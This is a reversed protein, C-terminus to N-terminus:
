KRNETYEPVNPATLGAPAAPAAGSIFSNFSFGFYISIDEGPNFGRGDRTSIRFATGFHVPLTFISHGVLLSIEVGPYLYEGVSVDGEFSFGAESELQVGVGIHQLHLGFPLPADAVIPVWRLEAVGLVAVPFRRPDVRSFFRIGRPSAVHLYGGALGSPIFSAKGGLRFLLQPTLFRIGGMVDGHFGIGKPDGPYLLFPTYMGLSARLGPAIIDRPATLAQHALSVGSFLSLRHFGPASLAQGFTFRGAGYISYSHSLGAHLLISNGRGRIYGSLLDFGLSVTQSTSQRYVPFLLSGMLANVGTDEYDHDVTYSFRFPPADVEIDASAYIQSLSPYFGANTELSVFSLPSSFMTMIGAGLAFGASNRVPTVAPIPFWFIPRPLDIYSRSPPLELWDYAEPPREEISLGSPVAPEGVSPYEKVAATYGKSTYTGYYIKDGVVRASIIGAPDRLIRVPEKKTYGPKSEGPFEAEPSIEYLALEGERDSTFLFTEDDKWSPFYDGGWDTGGLVPRAEGGEDLLYIDQMGRQNVTFAIRNGDPSFVPTFVTTQQEEYLPRLGGDAMDVEVLRSYSGMRQVALLRTGDPSLAPQRLRGGRTLRRSEGTDLSYIFLDSVVETGGAKAFNYAAAAYVLSSGRADLDFSYEDFLRVPIIVEEAPREIPGETPGEADGPDDLSLRVIAPPTNLGERYLYLGNEAARPYYWNGYTDPVVRKGPPIDRYASFRKRYLTEMAEFHEDGSKGTVKKIAGWPGFLPFRIYERHIKAFVDEGYRDMLYDVMMYGAIYIRGPPPYISGYGAQGLSFFEEELIHAKYYLEFFPNRGRGGSTFRTELVTTIGEVMWGPLHFSVGNKALEGFVKSANGYFGADETLHMYHTFEHIFLYRLWNRNLAGARPGSPSAVFLEIRSPGSKYYGNAQDTRGNVVVPIKEAPQRGFYGTVSSYVGPAFTLLERLAERDKEEYIFLFHDTELKRRGQFEEQSLLPFLIFFLFLASFFLLRKM